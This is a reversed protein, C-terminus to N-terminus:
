VFSAVGDKVGTFPEGSKKFLELKKIQEPFFSPFDRTNTAVVSDQAKEIKERLSFHCTSDCPNCVEDHYEIETLHPIIENKVELNKYMMTNNMKCHEKRYVEEKETCIEPIKNPYADHLGTQKCVDNPEIKGEGKKLHPKPIYEHFNTTTESITNDGMNFTELVGEHNYYCYFAIVVMCIFFGYIYNKSTYYVICLVAFLRGLITNSSQVFQMPFLVYLVILGVVICDVITCQNQLGKMKMTYYVYM